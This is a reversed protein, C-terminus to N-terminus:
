HKKQLRQRLGKLLKVLHKQTPDVDPDDPENGSDFGAGFPDFVPRFKARFEAVSMNRTEPDIEPPEKGMLESIFDVAHGFPTVDLMVGLAAVIQTDDAIPTGHSRMRYSRTGFDAIITRNVEEDFANREPAFVQQEAVVKSEHTSAHSYDESAGVLLPPLRFSERVAKANNKVYGQFLADEQMFQTMPKVEIRVAPGKEDGVTGVASPEAELLLVKHFSDSGKFDRELFQQLEETANAGLTGGAVTIIYPPITKENFYLFNIKKAESSGMINILESLWPPEGYPSNSSDPGFSILETAELDFPWRQGTDAFEGTNKNLSRPDGFQKFWVKDGGVIQCYRRFRTLRPIRRWEAGDRVWQVHETPSSDPYTMRITKAQAHHLEAIDDILNRVVELYGKGVLLIDSLVKDKLAIWTEGANPYRFLFELKRKEAKDSEGEQKDPDEDPPVYELHWGMGNINVQMAKVCQAIVDCTLSMQCLAAPEYLPPVLGLDSYRGAFADLQNSVVRESIKKIEGLTKVRGVITPQAPQGASTAAEATIKNRLRRLAKNSM